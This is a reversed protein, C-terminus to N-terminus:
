DLMLLLRANLGSSHGQIGFRDLVVYRYNVSFQSRRTQWWNLGLSLVDMEGGDVTGETLDV